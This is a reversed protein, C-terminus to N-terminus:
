TRTISSEGHGPDGKFYLLHATGANDVVAQPQIGGEPTRVLTVGVNRAAASATVIDAPAPVIVLLLTLL